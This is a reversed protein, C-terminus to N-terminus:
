GGIKTVSVTPSTANEWAQIKQIAECFHRPQAVLVPAIDHEPFCCHFCCRSYNSCCFHNHACNTNGAIMNTWSHVASGLRRAFNDLKPTRNGFGYSLNSFCSELYRFSQNDLSRPSPSFCLRQQRLGAVTGWLPSLKTWVNTDWSIGTALEAGFRDTIGRLAPRRNWLMGTLWTTADRPRRTTM